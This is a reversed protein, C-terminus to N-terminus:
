SARKLKEVRSQKVEQWLTELSSRKKKEAPTKRYKEFYDLKESKTIEACISKSIKKM